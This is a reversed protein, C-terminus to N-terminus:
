KELEALEAKLMEIQKRKAEIESAKKEAILKECKEKVAVLENYTATKLNAFVVEMEATKKPRAM